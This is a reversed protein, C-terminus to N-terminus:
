GPPPWELFTDEEEDQGDDEPEDRPDLRGASSSGGHQPPVVAGGSLGSPSPDQIPAAAGDAAALVQATREPSLGLDACIRAVLEGFPRGLLDAQEDAEYLQERVDLSVRQLARGGAEPYEAAVAEEVLRQVGRRRRSRREVAAISEAKDLDALRGLLQTQLAFTLRVARAARTYALAPDGRFADGAAQEAAPDAAARGAARAIEMGIEALESLMVIQREILGRPAPPPAQAAEAGAPAPGPSGISAPDVHIM